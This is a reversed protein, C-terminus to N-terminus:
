EGGGQGARRALMRQIDDVGMEDIQDHTQYQANLKQQKSTAHYQKGGKDQESALWRCIFARVGRKTKRKSPNGNSWGVMNRLEQLVDVAPYLGSWLQIDEESIPYDTGDNLTISLVPQVPEAAGIYSSDKDEKKKRREEETANCGTVTVNGSVNSETVTVNCGQNAVNVVKEQAVNVVKKERFKKVRARTDERIKEMGDINQHEEWGNVIIYGDADISVMDLIQLADLASTIAAESYGLEYALMADTYPLAETLYVAGGANCRGAMTLLMLWVMVNDNGNPMSRLYRVKRNNFVDVSLKIWKVDAM